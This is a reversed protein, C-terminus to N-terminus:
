LVIEPAFNADIEELINGQETDTLADYKKALGMLLNDVQSKTIEKSLQVGVSNTSVRRAVERLLSLGTCAFRLEPYLFWADDECGRLPQVDIV